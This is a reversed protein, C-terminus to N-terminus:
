KLRAKIEMEETTTFIVESCAEGNKFWPEEKLETEVGDKIMFWKAIKHNAKPKVVLRIERGKFEYHTQPIKTADSKWKVDFSAESNATKYHVEYYGIDQTTKVLNFILKLKKEFNAVVRMNKEITIEPSNDRKKDQPIDDDESWEKFAWGEDGITPDFTIKTGAPVLYPPSLTEETTEGFDKIVDVKGKDAPLKEVTIKYMKKSVYVTLNYTTDVKLNVLNQVKNDKVWPEASLEVGNNEWKTVEYTNGLNSISFNLISNEEVPFSTITPANKTAEKDINAGKVKVKANDSDTVLTLSVNFMRVFHAVINTDKNITLTIPNNKANSNNIGTGSWEKFKYATSAQSSFKVLANDQVEQGSILTETTPITQLATVTGASEEPVISWEVKHTKAVFLLTVKKSSEINKIKLTNKDSSLEINPESTNILNNNVKWSEVEYGSDPVAVFTIDEGKAVITGTAVITVGKKTSASLSGHTNAGHASALVEYSVVVEPAIEVSLEFDDSAILSFEKKAELAGHSQLNSKVELVTWMPPVRVKFTLEEDKQVRFNKESNININHRSYAWEALLSAISAESAFSKAIYKLRIEKSPLRKLEIKYKQETIGDEAVVVFSFEGDGDKEVDITRKYINGSLTSSSDGIKSESNTARVSLELKTAFSTYRLDLKALMVDDQVAFSSVTMDPIPLCTKNSQGELENYNTIDKISLSSLDISTDNTSVLEVYWLAEVSEAGEPQHLIVQIEFQGTSVKKANYLLNKERKYEFVEGEDKYEVRYGAKEWDKSDKFFSFLENIKPPAFGEEISTKKPIKLHQPTLTITKFIPISSNDKFVTSKLGAKDLVQVEIKREGSISPLLDKLHFKIDKDQESENAIPIIEKHKSEGMESSLLIHLEKLDQHIGVNKSTHITYEDEILSYSISTKDISIPPSNCRLTTVLKDLHRGNKSESISLELPVAEGLYGNTANPEASEDFVFSFEIYDPKVKTLHPLTSFFQSKEKPIYIAVDLDIDYKNIVSLYFNAEIGSPIYVEDGNGINQPEVNIERDLHPRYFGREIFDKINKRCSLPLTILCLIFFFYFSINKKM